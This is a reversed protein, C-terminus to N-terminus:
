EVGDKGRYFYFESAELFVKERKGQVSKKWFIRRSISKGIVHPLGAYERRQSTFFRKSYQIEAHSGVPSPQRWSSVIRFSDESHKHTLRLQIVRMVLSM